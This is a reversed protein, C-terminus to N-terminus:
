SQDQQSQNQFIRAGFANLSVFSIAVVEPKSIPLDIERWNGANLAHREDFKPTVGNLDGSPSLSRVFVRYIVGVKRWEPSPRAPQSALAPDAQQAFPTPATALVAALLCASAVYARPKM